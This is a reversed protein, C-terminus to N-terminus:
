ANYILRLLNMLRIDKREIELLGSALYIMKPSKLKEDKNVTVQGVM